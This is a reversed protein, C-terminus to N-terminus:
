QNANVNESQADVDGSRPEDRLKYLDLAGISKELSYHRSFFDAMAPFDAMSTEGKSLGDWAIGAVFYTPPHATLERMAEARYADRYAGPMTLPM